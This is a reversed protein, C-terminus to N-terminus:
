ASYSKVVRKGPQRQNPKVFGAANNLLGCSVPPGGLALWEWSRYALELDRSSGYFGPVGWLLGPVIM